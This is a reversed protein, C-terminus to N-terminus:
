RRLAPYSGHELLIAVLSHTYCALIVLLLASQPDSRPPSRSCCCRTFRASGSKCTSCAPNSLLALKSTGSAFRSNVGGALAADIRQPRRQFILQKEREAWRMLAWTHLAFM